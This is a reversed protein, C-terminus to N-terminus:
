PRLLMQRVMSLWAAPVHLYIIKVTAGQQYDDPADLVRALGFAFVLVTAAALWPLIRSVISLFRTPNALDIIPM